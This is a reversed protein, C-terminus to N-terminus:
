AEKTDWPKSQTGDFPTQAWVQGDLLRGAAKKGVAHMVNGDNWDYCRAITRTAGPRFASGIAGTPCPWWEGWQKFFFPVGAVACLDRVDRPWDPHMPRAKPGSEGGCIVWDLTAPVLWPSPDVPGLLPEFSVFRLAAPIKLLEAIRWLYDANEVSVGLAVNALPAGGLYNVYRALRKPRKTLVLYQHRPSQVMATWVRHLFTNPVDKHFLDGMSPVFVTRPKRWRVPQELREPHLTVRFPDDAPYGYRGKLRQAMREAYCNKCGPSMKTCGTVPNWVEECWEIKTPM